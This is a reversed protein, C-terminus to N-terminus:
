EGGFPSPRAMLERLGALSRAPRRNIQEWSEQAESGLSFEDRDALV